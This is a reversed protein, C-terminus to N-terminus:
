PSANSEKQLHTPHLAPISLQSLSSPHIPFIPSSRAPPKLTYTLSPPHPFPPLPAPPPLIHTISTRLQYTPTIYSSALPNASPLTSSTEQTTASPPQPRHIFSPPTVRLHIYDLETVLNSSPPTPHFRIRLPPHLLNLPNQVPTTPLNPVYSIVKKPSTHDREVASIDALAPTDRASTGSFADSKFM